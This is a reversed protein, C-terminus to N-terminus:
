RSMSCGNYAPRSRPIGGFGRANTQRATRPVSVSLRSRSHYGNIQRKPKFTKSSSPVRPESVRQPGMPANPSGESDKSDQEACRMNVVLDDSTGGFGNLAM